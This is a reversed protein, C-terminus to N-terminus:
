ERWAPRPRFMLLRKGPDDGFNSMHPPYPPECISVDARDFGVIEAGYRLGALKSAWRIATIADGVQDARVLATVVEDQRYAAWIEEIVERVDLEENM